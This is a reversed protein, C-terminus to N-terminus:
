KPRLVVLGPKEAMYNIFDEDIVKRINARSSAHRISIKDGSRIIIGVHSVDLGKEDSYIGAYDGTKLRDIVANDIAGSPIYSIEREIPKIGEIFYTGDKKLNLRKMVQIVRHEGVLATADEVFGSNYEIWDTFFHNRNVFSSSFGGGSPYRVRMLNEIFGSFSGSRRMAEVYDIFTFCDVKELNVVFVEPTTLDGILTSEKYSVDLFIRSIFEIRTGADIIESSNYLIRNLEYLTWKGTNIIQRM